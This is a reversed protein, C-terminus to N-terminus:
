GGLFASILFLAFLFAGVKLNAFGHLLCPLREACDLNSCYKEHYRAEMETVDGAFEEELEQDTKDWVSRSEFEFSTCHCPPRWESNYGQFYQLWCVGCFSYKDNWSKMPPSSSKEDEFYDPGKGPLVVSQVLHTSAAIGDLVFDDDLDYGGAWQLRPQIGPHEEKMKVKLDAITSRIPLEAVWILKDILVNIKLPPHEWNKDRWKLGASSTALYERLIKLNNIITTAYVGTLRVLLPFERTLVAIGKFKGLQDSSWKGGGLKRSIEVLSIEEADEMEIAVAGVLRAKKLSQNGTSDYSGTHKRLLVLLAPGKSNIVEQEQTTTDGITEEVKLYEDITQLSWHEELL